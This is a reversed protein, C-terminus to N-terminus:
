GTADSERFVARIRDMMGGVEFLVPLEDVGLSRMDRILGVRWAAEGLVSEPARGEARYAGLGKAFDRKSLKNGDPDTILPHHLLHVSRARGLADGLQLQRATSAVLDEGRIVLNVGQDLDDAVVAFQYTWNGHRDKLLLDGCQESAHQELSGLRLDEFTVAGAEWRLRTGGIEEPHYGRGRCHGDYCLEGAQGGTRSLIMKRSCTCTYVLGRGALSALAAAYRAENDSQRYRTAGRRFDDPRGRDPELGLWELDDLIAREYESRCRGRDHDELRLIVAGDLSRVIGWVYIANVLHGLHLFGTPSPAFRSM